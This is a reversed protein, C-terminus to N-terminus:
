VPPLESYEPPRQSLLVPPASSPVPPLDPLPPPSPLPEGTVLATQTGGWPLAVLHRVKEEQSIKIVPSVSGDESAARSRKARKRRQWFMDREHQLAQARSRQQTEGHHLAQRLWREGLGLADMALLVMGTWWVINLGSGIWVLLAGLLNYHSAHTASGDDDHNDEGDRLPHYRKQHACSTPLDFRGQEESSLVRLRVVRRHIGYKPQRQQVYFSWRLRGHHHGRHSSASAAAADEKELGSLHLQMRQGEGLYDLGEYDLELVAGGSFNGELVGGSIMAGNQLRCQERITVQSGVDVLCADAPNRLLLLCLSPFWIWALSFRLEMNKALLSRTSATPAVPALLRSPLPLEPDRRRMRPDLLSAPNGM